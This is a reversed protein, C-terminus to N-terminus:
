FTSTQYFSENLQALRNQQVQYFAQMQILSCLQSRLSTLNYQCYNITLIVFIHLKQYFQLKATEYYPQRATTFNGVPLGGVPRYLKEIPRYFTVPRTGDIKIFFVNQQQKTFIVVICM